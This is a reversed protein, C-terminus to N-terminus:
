KKLNIEQQSGEATYALTLQGSAAQSPIEFCIWGENVGLRLALGTMRPTFKHQELFTDNRLRPYSNGANDRVVLDQWNFVDSAAGTKSITLKSVLYSNGQTPSQQHVVEMKSGDYQTVVEVTNLNDKLDFSSVAVQWSLTSQVAVKTPTCSCLIFLLLLSLLYGGTKILNNQM